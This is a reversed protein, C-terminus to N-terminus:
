GGLDVAPEAPEVVGAEHLARSAVNQTYGPGTTDRLLRLAQALRVTRPDTEWSWQYMGEMAQEYETNM